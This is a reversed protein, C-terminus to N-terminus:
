ASTTDRIPFLETWACNTARWRTSSTGPTRIRVPDFWQPASTSIRISTRGACKVQFCVCVCVCCTLNFLLSFLAIKNNSEKQLLLGVFCTCTKPDSWRVLWNKNGSTQRKWKRQLNCLTCTNKGRQNNLILLILVLAAPITAEHNSFQMM